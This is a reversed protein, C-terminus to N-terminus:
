KLPFTSNSESGELYKSYIAELRGNDRLKKLAKAVRARAHDPLGKRFTVRQYTSVLKAPLIRYRGKLGHERLFSRIEIDQMYVFRGRGSELMKLLQMTDKAHDNIPFKYGVLDEKLISGRNVLVTNGEQVKEVQKFNSVDIPDHKRVVFVTNVPYLKESFFNMTKERSASKILCFFIDISGKDLYSEIRGISMKRELGVFKLGSDAREVEKIIEYCIGPMETSAPNYKVLANDQSVTKLRLVAEAWSSVSVLQFFLFFIIQRMKIRKFIDFEARM